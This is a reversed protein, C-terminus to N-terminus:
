SEIIEEILAQDSSILEWNHAPTSIKVFRMESSPYYHYKIALDKYLSVGAKTWYVRIPISSGPITGRIVYYDFVNNFESAKYLSSM